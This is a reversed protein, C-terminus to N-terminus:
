VEGSTTDTLAIRYEGAAKIAVTGPPADIRYDITSESRAITLRMRGNLLRVLSDSLLDIRTNHDLDLTSGDAYRVEVRGRETRLRDGALLVTNEEAKESKGDRELTATGDVVAIHAPVDQAWDTVDPPAAPPEYPGPSQPNQEPTQSTAQATLVCAFLLALLSRGVVRVPNM